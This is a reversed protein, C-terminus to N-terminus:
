VSSMFQEIFTKKLDPFNFKKEQFTKYYKAAILTIYESLKKTKDKEDLIQRANEIANQIEIKATDLLKEQDGVKDLFMDDGLDEAEYNVGLVNKLITKIFNLKDKETGTSEYLNPIDPKLEHINVGPEESSSGSDEKELEVPTENKLKSKNKLLYVSYKQLNVIQCKGSDDNTKRKKYPSCMNESIHKLIDTASIQINKYFSNQVLTSNEIFPIYEFEKVHAQILVHLMQKARVHQYFLKIIDM